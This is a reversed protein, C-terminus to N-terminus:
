FKSCIKQKKLNKAVFVSFITMEVLMQLACCGFAPRFIRCLPIDFKLLIKYLQVLTGYSINLPTPKPHRRKERVDRRERLIAKLKKYMHINLISIGFSPVIRLLTQLILTFFTWFFTRTVKSRRYTWCDELLILQHFSLM